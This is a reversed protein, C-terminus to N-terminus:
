YISEDVIQRVIAIEKPLAGCCGGIIYADLDIWKQVSKQWKEQINADEAFLNPYVLLPIDHVNLSQINQLINAADTLKTCNCGIALIRQKLCPSKSLKSNLYHMIQGISTGDCMQSSNRFNMSIYTPKSKLKSILNIIVKLEMYNPITEFGLIDVKPNMNMFTVLPTHYKQLQHPSIDGYEGTYEAYNALYGGYPGISACVKSYKSKCVKSCVNVSEHWLEQIREDTYDTHKKLSSYSLQYTSTTIIDSGAELFNRHAQEILEPCEILARGSWLPDNKVKFNYTDALAELQVGLGGDLVLRRKATM